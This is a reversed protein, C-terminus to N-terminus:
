PASVEVHTIARPKIDGLGVHDLFGELFLGNQGHTGRPNLLDALIRSHTKELEVFGLLRLLIFRPAERRESEAYTVRADQFQPWFTGLRAKLEETRRETERAGEATFRQYREILHIVGQRGPRAMEMKAEMRHQSSEVICPFSSIDARKLKLNEGGNTLGERDKKRARGGSEM